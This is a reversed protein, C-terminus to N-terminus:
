KDGGLMEVPLLLDPYAEVDSNEAIVSVGKPQEGDCGENEKAIQAQWRRVADGFDRAVVFMPRDDDQVQYLNM